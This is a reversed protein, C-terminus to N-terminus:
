EFVVRDYGRARPNSEMCFRTSPFIKGPNCVREPDFADRLRAMAALDAEGFVLPM